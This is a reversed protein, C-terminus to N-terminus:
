NVVTEFDEKAIVCSSVCLGRRVFRDEAGKMTVTSTSDSKVRM